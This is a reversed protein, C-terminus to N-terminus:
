NMAMCKADNLEVVYYPVGRPFFVFRYKAMFIIIVTHRCM